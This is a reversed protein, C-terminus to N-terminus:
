KGQSTTRGVRSGWPKSPRPPSNTGSKGRWAGCRSDTPSTTWSAATPPPPGYHQFVMAIKQRRFETLQDQSFDLVNEGDFHIQGSTPHILRTLCRVLTSKGSGSLGMVVFVQGEQVQLNVERLAVVCGTAEQIETRSKGQWEPQLTRHPNNGFVHWLDKVNIKANNNQM